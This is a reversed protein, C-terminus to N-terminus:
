RRDGCAGFQTVAYHLTHLPALCIGCVVRVVVCWCLWVRMYACLWFHPGHIGQRQRMCYLRILCLNHLQLIAVVVEDGALEISQIGLCFVLIHFFVQM